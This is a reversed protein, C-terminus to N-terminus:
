QPLRRNLCMAIVADSVAFQWRSAQLRGPLNPQCTCFKAAVATLSLVCQAASGHTKAGYNWNLHAGEEMFLSRAKWDRVAVQM